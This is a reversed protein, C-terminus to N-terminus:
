SNILAANLGNKLAGQCDTYQNDGIHLIRIQSKEIHLNAAESKVLNFLEESPKASGILDSFLTFDFYVDPLHEGLYKMIIEGSIFATNSTISKTSNFQSIHNYFKIFGSSVIPPYELFLREIRHQFTNLKSTEVGLEQFVNRYLFYPKQILGEGEMAANYEKGVKLFANNIAQDSCENSVISALIRSREFKFQPNSFAITSWFDFSFHDYKIAMTEDILEEWSKM